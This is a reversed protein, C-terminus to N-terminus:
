PVDPIFRPPQNSPQTTSNDPVPLPYTLSGTLILGLDLICLDANRDTGVTVVTRDGVRVHKFAGPLVVGFETYAVTCWAQTVRLM